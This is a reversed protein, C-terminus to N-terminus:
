SNKMEFWFVYTKMNGDLNNFFTERINLNLHDGANYMCYKLCKKIQSFLAIRFILFNFDAVFFECSLKYGCFNINNLIATKYPTECYYYHKKWFKHKFHLFNIKVKRLLIM